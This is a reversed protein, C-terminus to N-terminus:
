ESNNVKTQWRAKNIVIPLLEQQLVLNSSRFVYCWFYPQTGVVLFTVNPGNPDNDILHEWLASIRKLSRRLLIEVFIYFFSFEVERRFLHAFIFSASRLFWFLEFPLVHWFLCFIENPLGKTSIWLFSRCGLLSQFM